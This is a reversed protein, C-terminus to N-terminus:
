DMGVLSSVVREIFYESVFRVVGLVRDRGSVNDDVVLDDLTSNVVNTKLAVVFLSSLFVNSICFTHRIMPKTTTSKRRKSTTQTHM